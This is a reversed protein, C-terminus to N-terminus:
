KEENFRSYARVLHLLAKVCRDMAEVSAFEMVSHHNHSGTGLNPCPLGMFSLNSGDTGGRIPQSIVTGGQAEVALAANKLLHPHPLVKEAMNGYSDAIEIKVTDEGWTENLFAAVQRVVEKRQQFREGDHDRLFYHMHASGVTGDMSVLHYFGEYNETYQPREAEPLLRDFLFAISQANKMKGKATGPHTNVGTITVFASAANFSEYEVEGFTAGDLTYAFDAGFAQVDFHDTGRGIEEDPTFGVRIPGHPIEPQERLCEALTLIEAIGAKDDAGLLTTGDTVVLTDGVYNKLVPYEKPSLVIQKEANLLIDGGDYSPILRPHIDTWPVDDSVDMHALLGIVPGSGAPVNGPITGFLYGNEDLRVDTLGLSLMEQELARAFDLQAPTSPFSDSSRHSATPFATYKLLREYARM